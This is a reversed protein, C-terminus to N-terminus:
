QLTTPQLLRNVRDISYRVALWNASGLNSFRKTTRYTANHSCGPREFSAAVMACNAGRFWGATPTLAADPCANLPTTSTRLRQRAPHRNQRNGLAVPRLLPRWSSMTRREWASAKDISCWWAWANAPVSQVFPVNILRHSYLPRSQFNDETVRALEAGIEDNHTGM